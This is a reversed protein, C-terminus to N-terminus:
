VVTEEKNRIFYSHVGGVFIFLAAGGAVVIEGLHHGYAAYMMAFVLWLIGWMAAHELYKLQKMTKKDFLYVTFSRVFMAGIALGAAIVLFNNTVAFAAIVGDFSFSADLIELFVLSGVMLKGSNAALGAAAHVAVSDSEEQKAELVEKISHVFQYTILGAICSLGLELGEKPAFYGALIALPTALLAAVQPFKGLFAAAHELGPIWHHEKEGDMFFNMAVMFLFAAGFGMIEIHVAEIHGQYVEPQFLAVTVAEIPGMRGAICVILIPLILRMGAVAILMGWTLFWRISRQNLNEMYKANVVANDLSVSTELVGLVAASILASTMMSFGGQLYGVVAAFALACMTFVASGFFYKNFTNM